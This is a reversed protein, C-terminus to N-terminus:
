LRTSLAPYEFDLNPTMLVAKVSVTMMCIFVFVYLRVALSYLGAWLGGGWRWLGEEVGVSRGGGGVGVPSGWLGLLLLSLRYSGLWADPPRPLICWGAGGGTIGALQSIGLLLGWWRLFRWETIETM